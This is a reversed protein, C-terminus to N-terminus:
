MLYKIWSMFPVAYRCRQRVYDIWLTIVPGKDTQEFFYNGWSAEYKMMYDKESAPLDPAVDQLEEIIAFADWNPLKASAGCDSMLSDGFFLFKLSSSSFKAKFFEELVEYNGFLYEKGEELTDCEPGEFISDSTDVVKFPKKRGPRFFHPKECWECQVDFFSKWEEGLTQKM